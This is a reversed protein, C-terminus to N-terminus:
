MKRLINVFKPFKSIDWDSKNNVINFGYYKEYCLKLICRVLAWGRSALEVGVAM